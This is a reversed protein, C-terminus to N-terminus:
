YQKKMDNNIPQYDMWYTKVSPDFSDNIPSKGLMKRFMGLPFILLFFVLTLIIYSVFTGIIGAIASFFWFMRKVLGPICYVVMLGFVPLVNFFISDSDKIFRIASYIVLLIFLILTFRRATAIKIDNYIPIMGKIWRM